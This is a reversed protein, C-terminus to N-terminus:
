ARASFFYCWCCRVCALANRECEFKLQNAQVKM